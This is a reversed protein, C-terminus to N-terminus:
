AGVAFYESIKSRLQEESMQGTVVERIMGDADVFVTTPMGIGGFAAYVVGQPDRTLRYTVGTETAMAAAATPDDQINVGLFAVDGLTDQSVTQFDPMEAICFPCWTAWFNLVVPTGSYEALTMDVGDFDVMEVSPAPEGASAQPGAVAADEPQPALVMFGVILAVVAVGVGAWIFRKNRSRRKAEAVREERHESGKKKNQTSAM